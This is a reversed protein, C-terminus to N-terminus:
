FSAIYSTGMVQQAVALHAIYSTEMVQQAVAFNRGSNFLYFLIILLFSYLFIGPPEARDQSGYNEFTNILNIIYKKQNQHTKM